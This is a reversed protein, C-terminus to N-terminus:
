SRTELNAPEVFSGTKPVFIRWGTEDVLTQLAGAAAAGRADVVATWVTEGAGLDITVRGEDLQTEGRGEGDFVIAPWLTAIIRKVEDREGLPPAQEIRDAGDAPGLNLLMMRPLRPQGAAGVPAALPAAHPADAIAQVGEASTSDTLPALDIPLVDAMAAAAWAPEGAVTTAAAVAEPVPAVEAPKTVAPRRQGLWIMLALALVGAAVEIGPVVLSPRAHLDLVEFQPALPVQMGSLSVRTRVLDLVGARAYGEVERSARMVTVIRLMMVLFAEQDPQRGDGIVPQAIELAQPDSTAVVLSAPATVAQQVPRAPFFLEIIKGKSERFSAGVYDVNCGTVRLWLAKPPDRTFQECTLTVQQRNRAAHYTGEAGLALLPISVFLLPIQILKM